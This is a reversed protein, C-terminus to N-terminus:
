QRPLAEGVFAACPLIIGVGSLAVCLVVLRAIGRQNNRPFVSYHNQACYNATHSASEDQMPAHLPAFEGRGAKIGKHRTSGNYVVTQTIALRFDVYKM